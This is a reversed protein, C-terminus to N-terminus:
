EAVAIRVLLERILEGADQGTSKMRYDYEACLEVITKLKELSYPRACATLKNFIFDYRVGTLEMADARSRGESQALKVTYLRRMQQGILALLLIPHNSKDALLDSLLAAARDMKGQSLMDTMEFVDAEPIRSATAEIDARTVVADRAHAAAKEIEPILGSMLTGSLFILFEADQRAVSKGLSSFRNVIWKVLADQDQETFEVARGLKKLAKVVALRGDPENGASQVFAVTCYDPIDSLIAKLREAEADRCKNLDYDRVEVLTRETFFPLANVAEELEGLDLAAGNLRRYSFEAEGPVCLKRLEELLRERLYDERGYMLYLREPGKEKMQRLEAAYSFKTKEKKAM